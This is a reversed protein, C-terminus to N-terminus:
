ILKNFNKGLAKVDGTMRKCSKTLTNAKKVPSKYMKKSEMKKPTNKTFTISRVIKKGGKPQITLKIYYSPVEFIAQGINNNVYSRIAWYNGRKFVGDFKNKWQIGGTKTPVGRYEAIMALKDDIPKIVFKELDRGKNLYYIDTIITFEKHGEMDSMYICPYKLDLDNVSVYDKETM